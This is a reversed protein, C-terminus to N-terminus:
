ISQYVNKYCKKVTPQPNKQGLRAFTHGQGVSFYSLEPGLKLPTPRLNALDHALSLLHM